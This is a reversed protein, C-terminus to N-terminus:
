TAIAGAMSDLISDCQELFRKLGASDSPLPGGLEVLGGSVVWVYGGAEQLRLLRERQEPSLLKRAFDADGKVVYKADFAADGTPLAPEGGSADRRGTEYFSLSPTKRGLSAILTLHGRRGGGGIGAPQFEVEGEWRARKLRLGSLSWTAPIVSAGEWALNKLMASHAFKRYVPVGLGCAILFAVGIWFGM